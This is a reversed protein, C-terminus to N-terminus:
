FAPASAIEKLRRVVWAIAPDSANRSSWQAVERVAPFEFPLEAVQIPLAERFLGALRRHVTALRQSGVLFRGVSTFSPALVEIRREIGLRRLASEDFGPTHRGLRVSVHGLQEYLTRTMAGGLAPNQDWGVVVFQENYLWESPQEASILYDLAIVIDSRGRQLTTTPDETLAAIEFRMNPAESAFAAVAKTLLVEVVVDVAMISITRDSVAPDFPRSILITRRIQDLAAVVPETLKEARPTLSMTRGSPVLLEDDFFERLRALAASAGSQSLNLREAAASVSGEQLLADLVVLLNLDLGEFRM